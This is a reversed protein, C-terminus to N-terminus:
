KLNRGFEACTRVKVVKQMREDNAGAVEKPKSSAEDRKQFVILEARTIANFLALRAADVITKRLPDRRLRKPCFFNEPGVFGAARRSRIEAGDGLVVHM